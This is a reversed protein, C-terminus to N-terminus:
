APLPLFDWSESEVECHLQTIAGSSHSLMPDANLKAVWRRQMAGQQKGPWCKVFVRLLSMEASGDYRPLDTRCCSVAQHQELGYNGLQWGQDDKQAPFPSPGDGSTHARLEAQSCKPCPKTAHTV